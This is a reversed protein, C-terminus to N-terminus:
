IVYRYLAAQGSTTMLWLATTGNAGTPTGALVSGEQPSQTVKSWTAAAPDYRWIEGAGSVPAQAYLRGQQDIVGGGMTQAFQSPALITRWSKGGDNSMCISYGGGAFPLFAAQYGAHLTQVAPCRTNTLYIVDPNEGGTLIAATSLPSLEPISQLIMYWTQGGDISQYLELLPFGTGPEVPVFALEHMVSPNAPNVTYAEASREAAAAQSDLVHWSYGGDTSTIIRSLATPSWGRPGQPTSTSSLPLAQVSYLHNGAFSLQTGQWALTTNLGPVDVTPRITEWSDGADTTHELVYSSITTSTPPNADTAVFVENSDNPNIVLECGRSMQARKGIDQWTAGFDTSRLVTEVSRYQVPVGPAIVCAYLVNAHGPAALLETVHYGTLVQMWQGEPPIPQTTSTPAPSTTVTLNPTPTQNVPKQGPRTLVIVGVSSVLLLVILVSVLVVLWRRSRPRTPPPAPPAPSAGQDSVTVQTSISAESQKQECEMDSYSASM